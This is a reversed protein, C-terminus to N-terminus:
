FTAEFMPYQGTHIQNKWDRLDTVFLPNAAQERKPDEGKPWWYRMQPDTKRGPPADVVASLVGQSEVIGLFIPAGPLCCKRGLFLPRAPLRLAHELDQLTPTGDQKSLTIGITFISDVIYDRFRQHTGTGENSERRELSGWTTWALHDLLHDQGLDVTQYDQMVRGGFDRRVAHRISSQLASLKDADQHSFGLANGLLGALLSRGPFAATRGQADFVNNGFSMMPADFRLLLVRM